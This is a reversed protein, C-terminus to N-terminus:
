TVQGKSKLQIELRSGKLAQRSSTQEDVVERHWVSSRLFFQSLCGGSEALCKTYGASKECSIDARPLRSM